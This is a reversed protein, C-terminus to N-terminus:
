PLGEEALVEGDSDNHPGAADAAKGFVPRIQGDVTLFHAEVRDGIELDPSELMVAVLRCGAVGDLEVLGVTFPLPGEGGPLFSRHVRTMTHLVGTRAVPVWEYTAGECGPGTDDPYWQFKHCASCRPLRLEGQSVADWFPRAVDVEAPPEFLPIRASL